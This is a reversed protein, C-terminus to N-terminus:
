DSVILEVERPTVVVVVVVVVVLAEVAVATELVGVVATLLVKGFKCMTVDSDNDDGDDKDYEDEDDAAVACAM